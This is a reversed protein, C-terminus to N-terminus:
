RYLKLCKIGGGVLGKPMTGLIGGGHLKVSLHTSLPLSQGVIDYLM